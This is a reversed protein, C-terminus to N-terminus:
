FDILVLKGRLSSLSFSAGDPGSMTIEPAKKGIEIKNQAFIHGSFLILFLLTCSTKMNIM